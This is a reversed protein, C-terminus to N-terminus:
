ILKLRNNLSRCRHVGVGMMLLRGGSHSIMPVADTSVRDVSYVAWICRGTLDIM